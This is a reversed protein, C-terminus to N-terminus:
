EPDPFGAPLLLQVVARQQPTLRRLASHIFEDTEADERQRYRIAQLAMDLKDLQHVLRSEPTRHDTYEQWIARLRPQDRLLADAAEAERRHKDDASVNDHPTIDGARVEPLDHLVAMALARERDLEEPCLLLVLWAVGWSHGAVSEVESLGVRLWGARPLEKLKIAELLLETM